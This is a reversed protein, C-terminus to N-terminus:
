HKMGPHIKPNMRCNWAWYAQVTKASLSDNKECLYRIIRDENDPMRMRFFFDLIKIRDASQEEWDEWLPIAVESHIYLVFEQNPAKKRLEDM